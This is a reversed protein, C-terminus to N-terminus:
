HATEHILDERCLGKFPCLRCFGPSSAYDLNDLNMLGDAINRDFRQAMAISDRVMSLTLPVAREDLHHSRVEAAAGGLYVLRASIQQL